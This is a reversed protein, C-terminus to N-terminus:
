QMDKYNCIDNLIMHVTTIIAKLFDSKLSEGSTVMLVAFKWVLIRLQTGWDKFVEVIIDRFHSDFNKHIKLAYWLIKDLLRALYSWFRDISNQKEFDKVNAAM